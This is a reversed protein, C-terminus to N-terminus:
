IRRVLGLSTPACANVSNSWVACLFQAMEAVQHWEPQRGRPQRRFLDRHVHFEPRLAPPWGVHSFQERRVKTKANNLGHFHLAHASASSDPEANRRRCRDLQGALPSASAGTLGSRLSALTGSPDLPVSCLNTKGTLAVGSMVSASDCRKLAWPSCKTGLTARRNKSRWVTVNLFVDCHALDAQDPRRVRPTSTM